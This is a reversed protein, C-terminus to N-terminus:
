DAVAGRRVVHWRRVSLWGLWATLAWMVVSEVAGFPRGLTTMSLFLAFAFVLWLALAATFRLVLRFLEM